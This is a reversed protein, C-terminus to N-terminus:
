KLLPEVPFVNQWHRGIIKRRECLARLYNGNLIQQIRYMILASFYLSKKHNYRKILLDREEKQRKRYQSKKLSSFIFNQKEALYSSTRSNTHIRFAMLYFPIHYYQAQQGIFQWWLDTDMNYSLEFRLGDVKRYLSRYFFTSPGSILLRGMKTLLKSFNPLRSCHIIASHGDIVIVDGSIWLLEPNKLITHGVKNLTGPLLIDDSNIWTLYDGTARQFGKDIAESQGSDRESVWWDLQDEYERLIEVSNDTSGGDVVFYELNQYHQSLISQITERLFEGQNFSPTVVTIRPLNTM